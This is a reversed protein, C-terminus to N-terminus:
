FCGKFGFARVLRERFGSGVTLFVSLNEVRKHLFQHPNSKAM